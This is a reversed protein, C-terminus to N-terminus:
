FFTRDSVSFLCIHILPDFYMLILITYNERKEIQIFSAPSKEKDFYTSSFRYNM